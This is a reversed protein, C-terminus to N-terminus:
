RSKFVHRQNEKYSSTKSPSFSVGLAEVSFFFFCSHWWHM